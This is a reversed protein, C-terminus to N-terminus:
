KRPKKTCNEKLFILDAAISDSLASRKKTLIGGATSFVRESPVSTGPVILMKMAVEHLIPFLEKGVTDWWILPNSKRPSNQLKLYKVVEASVADQNGLRPEQRRRRVETDFDGWLSSRDSCAAAEDPLEETQAGIDQKIMEEKLKRVARSAAEEEKFGQRKYRPDCITALALCDVHEAHGVHFYLKETMADAFKKKFGRPNEGQQQRSTSAYFSLLSKTIPVVKSGSVYKEGSM